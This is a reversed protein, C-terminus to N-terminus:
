KEKHQKRIYSTLGRLIFIMALFVTHVIAFTILSLKINTSHKAILISYFIIDFLMLVISLFVSPALTENDNNNIKLFKVFLLYISPILISFFLIVTNVVFMTSDINSLGLILSLVLIAISLNALYFYKM